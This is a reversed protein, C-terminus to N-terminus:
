IYVDGKRKYVDIFILYPTSVKGDGAFHSSADTAFILM